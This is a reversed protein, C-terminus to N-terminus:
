RSSVTWIRQTPVTSPLLIRPKRTPTCLSSLAMPSWRRLISRTSQPPLSILEPKLLV